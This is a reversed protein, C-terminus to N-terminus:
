TFRSSSIHSNHLVHTPVPSCSIRCVPGLHTIFTAAIIFALAHLEVSDQFDMGSFHESIYLKLKLATSRTQEGLLYLLEIHFNINGCFHSYFERRLNLTISTLPWSSEWVAVDELFSSLCCHTRPQILGVAPPSTAIFLFISGRGPISVQSHLWCGTGRSLCSM